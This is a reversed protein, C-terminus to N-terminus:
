PYSTVLRMNKIYKYNLMIYNGIQCLVRDPPLSIDCFAM